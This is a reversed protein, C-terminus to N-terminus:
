RIKVQYSKYSLYRMQKWFLKELLQLGKTMLSRKGGYSLEPPNGIGIFFESSATGSEERVKLITDNMHCLGTQETSEHKIAPLCYQDDSWGIGVQMVEIKINTEQETQM